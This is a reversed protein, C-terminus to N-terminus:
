FIAIQALFCVKFGARKGFWSLSRDHLQPTDIKVREKIKRTCKPVPGVTNKKWKITNNDLM